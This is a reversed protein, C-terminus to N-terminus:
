ARKVNTPGTANDRICMPVEPVRRCLFNTDATTERDAPGPSNLCAICVRDVIELSWKRFRAATSSNPKNSAHATEPARADAPQAQEQHQKAHKNIATTEAAGKFDKSPASVPVVGKGTGKGGTCQKAAAKEATIQGDAANGQAAEGRVDAGASKTDFPVTQDKGAGIAGVRAQIGDSGVLAANATFLTPMFSQYNELQQVADWVTADEDAPNKLEIVALPLGSVFVGIDPRRREQGEVRGRGRGRHRGV